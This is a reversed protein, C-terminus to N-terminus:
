RIDIIETAPFKKSDYVFVSAPQAGIARISDVTLCVSRRDSFVVTVSSTWGTSASSSIAVSAIGTNAAKPTLEVRRLGAEDPLRRINYMSAYNNLVTFPNSATLEEPTPESINVEGTSHLMTWQTRGDYWVNMRPTTFFFRAGSVIANGQESEGDSRLTFLVEVNKATSFKARMADMISAATVAGDACLAVLLAVALISTRFINKHRM